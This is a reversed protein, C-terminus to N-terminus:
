NENLYELGEEAMELQRDYETNEYDEILKDIGRKVYEGTGKITIGLLGCMSNSNEM